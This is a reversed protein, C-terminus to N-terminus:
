RSTAAAGRPPASRWGTINSAILAAEGASMATLDLAQERVALDTEEYFLELGNSVAGVPGILDHCLRSCLFAALRIEDM